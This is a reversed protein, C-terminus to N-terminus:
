GSIEGNDDEDDRGSGGDDSGSGGDDDDDDDDDDTRSDKESQVNNEEDEDSDNPLIVPQAPRAAAARRPRGSSSTEGWAAAGAQIEELDKAFERQEKIRAAKELTFKGDMGADKLMGKLHRIKDKSTECNKLEKGWVKRIGCKVLWSQLQKIEAQDPDDEAKTKVTKAKAGKATKAPKDVKSKRRSKVPTEDLVDSMDDESADTKAAPPPTVPRKLEETKVSDAVKQNKESPRKSLNRPAVDEEGSDEALAKKLRHRPPVPPENESGSM